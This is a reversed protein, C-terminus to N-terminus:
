NTGPDREPETEPVALLELMASGTSKEPAFGMLEGITPVIDCLTRPTRSVLGAEIDPGVALLQVTRCGTCSCGHGSFDDSHRGHDSTVFMTTKGAYVSDGQLYEWLM